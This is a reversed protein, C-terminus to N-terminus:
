LGRAFSDREIKDLLLQGLNAVKREAIADVIDKAEKLGIGYEARVFRIAPIRYNSSSAAVDRIFDRLHESMTIKEERQVQFIVANGEFKVTM